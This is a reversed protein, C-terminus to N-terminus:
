ISSVQHALSLWHVAKHPGDLDRPVTDHQWYTFGGFSGDEVWRTAQQAGEGAGDEDGAGKRQTSPEQGGCEEPEAEAKPGELTAGHSRGEQERLVVGADSHLPTPFHLLLIAFDSGTLFVASFSRLGLIAGLLRRLSSEAKYHLGRLGGATHFPWFSWFADELYPVGHGVYNRVM